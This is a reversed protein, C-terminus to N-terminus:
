RAATETECTQYPSRRLWHDDPYWAFVATGGRIEDILARHVAPDVAPCGWSRGVRGFYDVVEETVYDAGHMVIARERARDNIGPELGDLRLSYGHRGYYTEATRFLGLSSQRSGVENSFRKARVEGSERGHAVLEHFRIRGAVPDIVWLRRASSPRSYDILTLTTDEVLGRSRACDLAALAHRLPAEPVGAEVLRAVRSEAAALQVPPADARATPASAITALAIARLAAFAATAALVIGGRPGRM